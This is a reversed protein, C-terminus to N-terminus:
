QNTLAAFLGKYGDQSLGETVGQASATVAGLAAGGLGGKLAGAVLRKALEKNRQSSHIEQASAKQEPTMTAMLNPDLKAVDSDKLGGLAAGLVAGAGAGIGTHSPLLENIRDGYKKGLLITGTLTGLGGLAKGVGATKSIGCYLGDLYIGVFHNM